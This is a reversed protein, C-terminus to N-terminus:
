AMIIIIEAGVFQGPFPLLLVLKPLPYYIFHMSASVFDLTLQLWFLEIYNYQLIIIITSTFNGYGVIHTAAPTYICMIIICM